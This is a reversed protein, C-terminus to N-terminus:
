VIMGATWKHTETEADPEELIPYWDGDKFKKAVDRSSNRGHRLKKSLYTESNLPIASM